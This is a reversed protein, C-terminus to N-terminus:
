GRNNKQGGGHPETPADTYETTCTGKGTLFVWDERMRFSIIAM